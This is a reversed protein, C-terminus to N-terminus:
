GPYISGRGMCNRGGEWPVDVGMGMTYRGGVWLM